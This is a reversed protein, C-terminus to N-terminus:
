PKLPIAPRSPTKAAPEMYAKSTFLGVLRAEGAITGDPNVIRVGVYDMRARRHVTAYAKTKTIVLLEGEEIRRRVEPDLTDLRTADAFSSTSVDSM